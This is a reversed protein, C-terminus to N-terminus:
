PARRTALEGFQGLVRHGSGDAGPTHVRGQPDTFLVRGAGRLQEVPGAVGAPGVGAAGNGTAGAGTVAAAQRRGVVREGALGGAVLGCVVAVVPVLVALRRRGWGREALLGAAPREQNDVGVTPPPGSM